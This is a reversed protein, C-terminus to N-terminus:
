HAVRFQIQIVNYRFLRGPIFFSNKFLIDGMRIFHTVSKCVFWSSIFLRGNRQHGSYSRCAMDSPWRVVVWCLASLLFAIGTRVSVRDFPVSAESCTVV